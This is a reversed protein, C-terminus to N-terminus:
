RVRLAKVVRGSGALPLTTGPTLTGTAADIAYLTVGGAFGTPAAADPRFWAVAAREGAGLLAVSRNEVVAGANVNLSHEVTLAAGDFAATQVHDRGVTVFRTLAANAAIARARNSGYVLTTGVTAPASPDGLAYVGIANTNVTTFLLDPGSTRDVFATDNGGSGTVLVDAPADAAVSVVRPGNYLLPRTPHVALGHLDINAAEALLTVTGDAAVSFVDLTDYDDEKVYLRTGAADFTGSVPACFGVQGPYASTDEQTCAALTQSADWAFVRDLWAIRGSSVAFRDIRANGWCGPGSSGSCDNFSTVYLWDRTPHKVIGFVLHNALLGESPVAASSVEVLRDGDLRLLRLTTGDSAVLREVPDSDGGGGCAAALALAALAAALVLPARVTRM